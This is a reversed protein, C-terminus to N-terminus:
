HWFTHKNKKFLYDTGALAALFIFFIIAVSNLRCTAIRLVIFLRSTYSFVFSSDASNLFPKFGDSFLNTYYSRQFISICHKIKIKSDVSFAM